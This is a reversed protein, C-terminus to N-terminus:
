GCDQDIQGELSTWAADIRELDKVVTPLSALLSDGDVGSVTTQFANVAGDMETVQAGWQSGASAKLNALGSRVGTLVALVGAKGAEPPDIQDLEAVSAKLAAADACAQSAAATTGAAVTTTAPAATSPEDGSGGCAAALCLLALLLLRAPTPARM